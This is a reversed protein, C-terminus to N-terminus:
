SKQTKLRLDQKNVNEHTQTQTQRLQSEPKPEPVNDLRSQCLRTSQYQLPHVGFTICLKFCAIYISMNSYVLPKLDIQGPKAHGAQKLILLNSINQKRGVLNRFNIM